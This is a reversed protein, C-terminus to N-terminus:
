KRENERRAFSSRSRSAASLGFERGVKVAIAIAASKLSVAPNKVLCGRDSKTLMGHEDILKQAQDVDALAQCYIALMDAEGQVAVHPNEEIVQHWKQLASGTLTAPPEIPKTKM